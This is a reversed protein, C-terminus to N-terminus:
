KKWKVVTMLFHELNKFRWHLRHASKMIIYHAVGLVKTTKSRQVDTPLLVWILRRNKDM